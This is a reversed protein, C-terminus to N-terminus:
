ILSSWTCESTDESGTNATETLIQPAFCGWQFPALNIAGLHFASVTTTNITLLIFPSILKFM